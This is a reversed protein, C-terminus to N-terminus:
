RCEMISFDSKVITNGKNVSINTNKLM